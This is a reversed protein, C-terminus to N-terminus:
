VRIHRHCLWQCDTFASIHDLDFSLMWAIPNWVNWETAANINLIDHLEEENDVWRTSIEFADKPKKHANEYLDSLFVFIISRTICTTVISFSVDSPVQRATEQVASNQCTSPSTSCIM